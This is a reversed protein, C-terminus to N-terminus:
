ISPSIPFVHMDSLLFVAGATFFLPGTIGCRLTRNRFWNAGCGIAVALCITAVSSAHLPYWYIGILSLVGWALFSASCWYCISLPSSCCAQRLVTVASDM